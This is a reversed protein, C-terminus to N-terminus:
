ADDRREPRPPHCCGGPSASTPTPPGPSSRGGPASSRSHRKRRRRRTRTPGPGRWSRAPSGVLGIAGHGAAGEGPPLAPDTPRSQRVDRERRGHKCRSPCAGSPAAVPPWPGLLLVLGPIGALAAEDEVSLDVDLVIVLSASAAAGLAAEVGLHIGAAARCPQSASRGCRWGPFELFRLREGVPVKIAATVELRDVLQRVLGLSEVSARGLRPDGRAPPGQRHERLPRARHGIWPLTGGRRVCSRRRSEIARNMWRYNMRGYDCIFHRNVELNPRPRSGCSSTM